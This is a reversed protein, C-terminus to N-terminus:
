DTMDFTRVFSSLSRVFSCLLLLWGFKIVDGPLLSYLFIFSCCLLMVSASISYCLYVEWVLYKMTAEVLLKVDGNYWAGDM